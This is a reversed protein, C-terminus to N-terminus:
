KKAANNPSGKGDLGDRIGLYANAGTLSAKSYIEEMLPIFAEEGRWM